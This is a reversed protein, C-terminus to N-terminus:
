SGHRELSLSHAHRTIILGTELALRDELAMVGSLEEELSHLFGPLLAANGGCTACRQMGSKLASLTERRQAGVPQKGGCLMLRQAPFGSRGAAEACACAGARAGFVQTSLIMGGGIRNAGHMGTACEGCAYLGEAATRGLADIWAGGNGAHAMPAIERWVKEGPARVRVIGSDDCQELFFRDLAADEHGYGYPCHSARMASFSRLSAPIDLPIGGQGNKREPRRRVQWGERAAVHLPFFRKPALTYWLFQVFGPQEVVCGARQLLAYSWGSVAPGCVNMGYLSAPGGMAMIVSLAPQAVPGADNELRVLAGRVNPAPQGPDQLLGIVLAGELLKGGLDRFRQALTDRMHGLNRFVVASAMEPLFCGSTRNELPLAGGRVQVGWELLEGYRPLSEEAMIRVLEPDLAGPPAIHCAREVFAAREADDVLVQMGLADYENSFSSGSAGHAQSLCLVSAGPRNELAAIGARLGALGAGLVLVDVLPLAEPEHNM